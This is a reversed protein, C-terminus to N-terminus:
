ECGFFRRLAYSLSTLLSTRPVPQGEYTILTEEGGIYALRPIPRRIVMRVVLKGNDVGAFRVECPWRGNTINLVVGYQGLFAQVDEEDVMESLDHLVVDTTGDELTLAIRPRFNGSPFRHRGSHSGVLLEATLQDRMKLFLCRERRSWQLRLLDEPQVQLVRGVFEQLQYACPITPLQSLDIRVTHLRVQRNQVVEYHDEIGEPMDEMIDLSGESRDGVGLLALVKSAAGATAGEASKCVACKESSRNVSRLLVPSPTSAASSSFSFGTLTPRLLGSGFHLSMGSPQVSLATASEPLLLSFRHLILPQSVEHRPTSGSDSYLISTNM